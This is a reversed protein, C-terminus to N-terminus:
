RVYRKMRVYVKQSGTGTFSVKYRTTDIEGELGCNIISEGTAIEEDNILATQEGRNVFVVANSDLTDIDGPKSILQTTVIYKRSM